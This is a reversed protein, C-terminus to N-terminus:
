SRAGSMTGASRRRLALTAVVALIVLGQLVLGFRDIGPLDAALQLANTGNALAAFLLAAFPLAATRLGALLAIAVAAYGAGQALSRDALRAVGLLQVAGALGACAGGLAFALARARGLPFGQARALRPSQAAVRLLLGVRTRTLTWATAVLLLLALPLGLHIGGSSTIAIEPLRATAAIPASQPFQHSSEQLPGSVLWRLLEFAVGNLMLTALVEPVGRAVALLAPLLAWLFGAGAGALLAPLWHGTWQAVATAALAGVILQGEAGINWLGVRFCLLVGLAALLLTATTRLTALWAGASGFAGRAIETVAVLPSLGQLAFLALAVAVTAAAVLWPALRNM